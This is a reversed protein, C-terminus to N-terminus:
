LRTNYLKSVDLLKQPPLSDMPVQIELHINEHPLVNESSIHKKVPRRIDQLGFKKRIYPNRLSLQQPMWTEHM